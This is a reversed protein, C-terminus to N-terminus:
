RKLEAPELLMLGQPEIFVGPFINSSIPNAPPADLATLTITTSSPLADPPIDLTIEDGRSNQLTITGGQSAEIFQSVSNDQGATTGCWGILNWSEDLEYTNAEYTLDCGQSADIWYGRQVHLTTLSNWEPHTIAWQPNYATWGGVGEGAKYGYAMLLEDQISDLGVAVDPNDEPASPNVATAGCWGILNWGEDLEYTNAEYTLDCAQSVDIWYGRQVYLTTLSNWEPHAAAWVPNYVTWGGVGEGSKYGYAMVLWDSISDLGTAVDPNGQNGAPNITLDVPVAQPGNIAAPDSITITSSYSGVSQVNEAAHTVPSYGVLSFTLALGLLITLVKKM